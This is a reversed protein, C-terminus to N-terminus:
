HALAQQLVPGQPGDMLAKLEDATILTTHM